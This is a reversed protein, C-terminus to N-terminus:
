YETFCLIFASFAVKIDHEMWKLPMLDSGLHFIISDMKLTKKQPPDDLKKKRREERWTYAVWTTATASSEISARRESWMETSTTFDGVKWGAMNWIWHVM